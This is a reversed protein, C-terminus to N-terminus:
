FYWFFVGFIGFDLSFKQSIIKLTVSLAMNNGFSAALHSFSDFLLNAM